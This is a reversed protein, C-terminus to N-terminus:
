NSAAKGGFASMFGCLSSRRSQALFPCNFAIRKIQRLTNRLLDIINHECVCEVAHGVLGSQSSDDTLHEFGMSIPTSIAFFIILPGIAEPSKTQRL